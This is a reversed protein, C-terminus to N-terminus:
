VELIYSYNSTTSSHRFNVCIRVVHPLFATMILYSSYSLPATSGFPYFWLGRRIGDRVHHSLGAILCIWSFRWLKSSFSFSMVIMAIWVLILLSTNHFPPRKTLNMADKLRLSKAQIFHDLDLLCGLCGCVFAEIINSRFLEDRYDVVILWSLSAILGHVANDLLARFMWPIVQISFVKDGILEVNVLTITLFLRIYFISNFIIM